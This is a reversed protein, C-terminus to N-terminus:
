CLARSAVKLLRISVKVVAVVCVVLRHEVFVLVALGPDHEVFHALTSPCPELAVPRCTHGSSRATGTLACVQKRGHMFGYWTSPTRQTSSHAARTWPTSSHAAHTWPVPSLPGPGREM